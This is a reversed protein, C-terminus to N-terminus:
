KCMQKWQTWCGGGLGAEQHGPTRSSGRVPRPYPPACVANVGATLVTNHPIIMRM